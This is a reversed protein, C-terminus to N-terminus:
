LKNDRTMRAPRASISYEMYAADLERRGQRGKGGRELVTNKMDERVVTLRYLVQARGM